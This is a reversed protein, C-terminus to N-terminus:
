SVSLNASSINKRFHKGPSTKGSIYHYKTCASTGQTTQLPRERERLTTIKM